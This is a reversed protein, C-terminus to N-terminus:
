MILAYNQITSTVFSQRVLTFITKTLDEFSSSNWFHAILFTYLKRTGKGKRAVLTSLKVHIYLANGFKIMEHVDM